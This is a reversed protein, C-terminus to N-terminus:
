STSWEQPGHVKCVGWCTEWETVGNSHGTSGYASLFRGCAPCHLRM